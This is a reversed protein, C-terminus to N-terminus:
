VTGIALFQLTTGGELNDTTPELLRYTFQLNTSSGVDTCLALNAGVQTTLLVIPNAAANFVPINNAVPFVFTGYGPDAPLPVHFSGYKILNGGPLYFFGVNLGGLSATSHATIPFKGGIANTFFLENFGTQPQAPYAAVSSPNAAYYGLYAPPFTPVAAFGPPNQPVFTTKYHFGDLAPVASGLPSHDVSGWAQIETFNQLILPQSNSIFDTAQPINATYPM